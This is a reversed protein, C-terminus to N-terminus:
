SEVKSRPWEFRTACDGLVQHWHPPGASSKFKRRGRVALLSSAPDVQFAHRALDTWSDRIGSPQLWGSAAWDSGQDSPRKRKPPPSRKPIARASVNSSTAPEHLAAKSHCLYRLWRSQRCRISVATVLLTCWALLPFEQLLQSAYSASKSKSAAVLLWQLTQRRRPMGDKEHRCAQFSLNRVFLM